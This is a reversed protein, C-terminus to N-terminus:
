RVRQELTDQQVHAVIDLHQTIQLACEMTKAHTQIVNQHRFLLLFDLDYVSHM